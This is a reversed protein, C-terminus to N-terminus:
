FAFFYERYSKALRIKSKVLKNMDSNRFLFLSIDVTFYIEYTTKPFSKIKVSISNEFM